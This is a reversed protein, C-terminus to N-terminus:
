WLFGRWEEEAVANEEEEAVGIGEPVVVGMWRLVEGVAGAMEGDNCVCSWPRGIQM